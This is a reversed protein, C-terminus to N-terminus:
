IGWKEALRKVEHEYKGADMPPILRREREYNRLRESYAMWVDNKTKKTKKIQKM